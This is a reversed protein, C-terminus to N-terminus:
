NGKGPHLFTEIKLEGTKSIRVTIAGFQSTRYLPIDGALRNFDRQKKTSRRDNSSIIAEPHVAGIFEGTTTESSGHHPAVLINAHLNEPHDILERETAAQIDAPFLITRGHCNLRLVVGANNTSTFPHADPPWLVDLTADDNLTLHRGRTVTEIPIHLDDLHHLMAVAPPSANAQQRFVPSLYVRAPHYEDATDATASIHDYDPHSLFIADISRVGRTRLYPDLITRLPATLSSSGDDILLAHGDSLEVIGIQGAGISLLTIRTEGNGPSPAAAVLMPLMALLAAAVPACRIWRKVSPWTWPLLPLSLVIYYLAIQWLPPVSMPVNAGPLHALWNVEHRMWLMPTAALTAWTAALSPLLLTILIKLLGGILGLAVVPFLLLGAFVAYPNLQDFHYMVLPMSVLWAVCGIALSGTLQGRLRLGCSVWFGPRRFSRAVRTHEDDYLGNCLEMIRRTALLMGFVTLFSLQFGASYLDLPHYLLLGIACIALTQIGDRQRGTLQSIGFALCLVTARLVPTAPLVILGYLLVIAMMFWTSKRPHARLLRSVFLACGAILIVHLGSVALLHATGSHSFDDQVTRMEPDRDGLALALLVAHDLSHKATFGAALLRRAHSRMKELPAFGHASLLTVGDVHAVTVTGLVRQRRYYAAADFQGPNMAVAPRQLLGVVSIQQGAALEANPQELTLNVEGSTREWGRRTKVKMVEARAAQKPPLPHGQTPPAIIQPMMLVRLEMQALKPNDTLFASIHSASFYHSELQSATIGTLFIAALLCLSSVKDRSSTLLSAVIFAAIVILWLLPPGRLHPQAAIGAILAIAIPFAPRRAFVSQVGCRLMALWSPMHPMKGCFLSTGIFIQKETCTVRSPGRIVPPM